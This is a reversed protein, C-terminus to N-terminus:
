DETSCKRKQSQERRTVFGFYVKPPTYAVLRVCVLKSQRSIWEGVGAIDSRSIDCCLIDAISYAAISYAIVSLQRLAEIVSKSM